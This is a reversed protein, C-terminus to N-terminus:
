TLDRQRSRCGRLIFRVSSKGVCCWRDSYWRGCRLGTKWPQTFCHQANRKSNWWPHMWLNAVNGQLHVSFVPVHVHIYRLAFLWLCVLLCVSYHPYTIWHQCCQTASTGGWKPMWEYSLWHLLLTERRVQGSKLRERELLLHLM